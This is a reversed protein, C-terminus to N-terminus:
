HLSVLEKNTAERLRAVRTCIAHSQEPPFLLEGREARGVQDYDWVPQM